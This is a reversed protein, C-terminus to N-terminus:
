KKVLNKSLNLIKLNKNLKYFVLLFNKFTSFNHNNRDVEPSNKNYARELHVCNGIESVLEMLRENLFEDNLNQPVFVQLLVSKNAQRLLAKTITSFSLNPDLLIDKTDKFSNLFTM